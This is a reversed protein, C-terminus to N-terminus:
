HIEYRKYLGIVIVIVSQFLIVIRGVHSLVIVIVWASCILITFYTSRHTTAENSLQLLVQIQTNRLESTTQQMLVPTQPQMHINYTIKTFVHRTSWNINIRCHSNLLNCIFGTLIKWKKQLFAFFHNMEHYFSSKSLNKTPKEDTFQNSNLNLQIPWVSRNKCRNVPPLPKWVRFPKTFRRM